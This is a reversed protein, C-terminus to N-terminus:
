TTRNDECFLLLVDQMKTSIVLLAMITKIMALFHDTDFLTRACSILRLFFLYEAAETALM